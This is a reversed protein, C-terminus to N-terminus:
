NEREESEHASKQLVEKEEDAMGQRRKQAYYYRSTESSALSLSEKQPFDAM